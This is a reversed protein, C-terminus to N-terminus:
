PLLELSGQTLSSWLGPVWCLLPTRCLKYTRLVTLALAMALSTFWEKSLLGEKMHVADAVSTDKTSLTRSHHSSLCRQTCVQPKGEAKAGVTLSFIIGTWSPICLAGIFNMNLMCMTYLCIHSLSICVYVKWQSHRKVFPKGGEGLATNLTHTYTHIHLPRHRHMHGTRLNPHPWSIAEFTSGQTRYVKGGWVCYRM